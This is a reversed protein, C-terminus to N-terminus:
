GTRRLPSPKPERIDTVDERPVTLKAVNFLNSRLEVEDDRVVTVTFDLGSWSGHLLKVIYDPKLEPLDPRAQAYIRQHNKRSDRTHDYRRTFHSLEVERVTIPVSVPAPRAVPTGNVTQHTSTRVAMGTLWSKDRILQIVRGMAAQSPIYIFFWGGMIPEAYARPRERKARKAATLRQHKLEFPTVCEVGERKLVADTMFLDHAALERGTRVKLTHYTKM